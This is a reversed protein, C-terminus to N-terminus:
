LELDGAKKKVRFLILVLVFIISFTMLAAIFLRPYNLNHFNNNMFHQLMYISRHPRDGCLLYAERFCRFANMVSFVAVLVTSPFLLPLTIRFFVGKEDAGDLQAAMQLDKPIMNLGALFLVMSYGCNKWLYLIVLIWFAKDSSLWDVVPLGLADYIGNLVGREALFVQIVMVISAIPLVQPLLFVSRFFSSLTFSRHLLLAVALSLVMVLPVSIAVFRLTNKAALQFAASGWVESYNKLGVYQGAFYFTQKVGSLFPWIYLFVFGILFPLVFLLGLLAEKHRRKMHM